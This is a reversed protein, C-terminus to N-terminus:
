KFLSQKFLEITMLTVQMLLLNITGKKKSQTHSVEQLAQLVFCHFKACNNMDSFLIFKCSKSVIEQNGHSLKCTATAGQSMEMDAQITADEGDYSM